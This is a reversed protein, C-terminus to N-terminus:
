GGQRRTIHSLESIFSMSLVCHCRKSFTRYSEEMFKVIDHEPKSSEGGVVNIKLGCRGQIRLWDESGPSLSELSPPEALSLREISDGLSGVSSSVSADDSDGDDDHAADYEVVSSQAVRFSTPAGLCNADVRITYQKATVGMIEGTLRMYTGRVVRVRTGSALTRQPGGTDVQVAGASASGTSSRSAKTASSSEGNTSSTSSSSAHAQGAGAPVLFKPKVRVPEGAPRSVKVFCDTAGVVRGLLGKHTGGVVEVEEELAWGHFVM